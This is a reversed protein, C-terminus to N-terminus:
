KNGDFFLTIEEKGKQMLKKIGEVKVGVKVEGSKGDTTIYLENQKGFDQPAKTEDNITWVLFTDVFNSKTTSLNLPQFALKITDGHVANNTNLARNTMLRGKSNKRYFLIKPDAKKTPITIINEAFANERRDNMNVKIKEELNLPDAEFTFSDRGFGSDSIQRKYNKTWYYILKKSDSPEVLQTEPIATIKIEAQKLPIAKGRYFPPTYADVAEWLLDVEAPAFRLEKRFVKNGVEIVATINKVTGTDGTTFTFERNGYDASQKEGNLYWAIYYDNLNFSYSKLKLYVEENPGPIEPITEVFIDKDTYLNFGIASALFINQTFFIGFIFVLIFIKKKM